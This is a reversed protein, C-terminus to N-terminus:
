AACDARVPLVEAIHASLPLTNFGCGDLLLDLEARLGAYHAEAQPLSRVALVGRGGDRALHDRGTDKGLAFADGRVDMLDDYSQFARGLTKGLKVLMDVEPTDLRQIVGFMRFGAAFLAGTKLDQEREVAAVDKPANVDLDQGASLGRPGVAEALIAVLRARTEADTGRATALLLMAETVLAIGALIARCEGHVLHTAPRGRRRRADDMCPLDDFVLSATHVLEVACAADILAPGVGGTAEGAILLVLARFRKGPALAAHCM